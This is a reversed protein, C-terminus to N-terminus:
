RRGSALTKIDNKTLAKTEQFSLAVDTEVPAGDRHFINTSANFTATMSTLYTQYIKPLYANERSDENYFRIEWVPPYSLIVDNGEPYMNARFTNVISKISAAEKQSRSVLKFSFSYSRINSSQFTTNTNPALVQRQNFDLTDAVTEFGMKRSLISAAAAANMKSAKNIISGTMAGIGAGIVGSVSNQQSMQTMTESM